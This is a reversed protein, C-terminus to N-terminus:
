IQATPVCLPTNFSLVKANGTQIVGCPKKWCKPAQISLGSFFMWSGSVGKSGIITQSYTRVDVLAVLIGTSRSMWALFIRFHLLHTQLLVNQRPVEWPFVKWLLSRSCHQHNPNIIKDPLLKIQIWKKLNRLWGWFFGRSLCLLISLRESRQTGPGFGLMQWNVWRLSKKYHNNSFTHDCYIIGFCIHQPPTLSM